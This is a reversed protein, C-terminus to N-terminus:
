SAPVPTAPTATTEAMKAAPSMVAALRDKDFNM